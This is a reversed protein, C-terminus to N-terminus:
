VAEAIVYVESALEPLERGLEWLGDLVEATLVEGIEEMQRHTFPKVFYGGSSAVAFGAEGALARLDGATFVHHHFGQRDRESLEREDAILGMVRALRRHFSLANAVGLLLADGPRLTGRVARLWGAPDAVSQLVGFCLTLEPSGQFAGAVADTREEFFGTIVELEIQPSRAREAIEAFGPIPEVVVWKGPPEALDLAREYFPSTGCGIEVVAAPRREALVELALRQRAKTLEREFGTDARYQEEYLRLRAQEDASM